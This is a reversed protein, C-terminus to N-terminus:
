MYIVVLDKSQPLPAAAKGQSHPEGIPMMRYKCFKRVLGVAPCLVRVPVAANVEASLAVNLRLNLARNLAPSLESNFACTLGPSTARSAARNM